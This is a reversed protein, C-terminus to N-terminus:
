RGALAAFDRWVQDAFYFSFRHFRVLLPILGAAVIAATILNRQVEHGAAAAILLVVLTLVGATALGRCLGYIANFGEARGDQGLKRLEARALGFRDAVSLEVTPQGAVVDLKAQILSRFGGDYAKADGATMRRNSPWGGVSNWYRGEWAVAVGQIVNGAIYFLVILGLVGATTPDPPLGSVAFYIGSTAVAGPLLLALLQYLGLLSFLTEM